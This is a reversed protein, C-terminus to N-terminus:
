LNRYYALISDLKSEFEELTYTGVEETNYSVELEGYKNMEFSLLSNPLQWRGEVYIFGRDAIFSQLRSPVPPAVYAPAKVKSLKIFLEDKTLRSKLIGQSYVEVIDESTYVRVALPTNIYVDFGRSDGHDWHYGRNLLLKSINISPIISEQKSIRYM